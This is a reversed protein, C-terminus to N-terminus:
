VIAVLTISEYDDPNFANIDPDFADICDQFNNVDRNNAFYSSLKEIANEDYLDIGDIIGSESKFIFCKGGCEYLLENSANTRALYVRTTKALDKKNM